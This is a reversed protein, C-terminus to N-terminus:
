FKQSSRIREFNEADILKHMGVTYQQYVNKAM